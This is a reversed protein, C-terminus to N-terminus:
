LQLRRRRSALVLLTGLGVFIAAFELYGRVPTGTAALRATSQNRVPTPTTGGGSDGGVGPPLAAPGGFTLPVPPTTAGPDGATAARISCAGSADYCGVIGASTVIGPKLTLDASFRGEADSDLLQITLPGCDPVLTDEGRCQGVAVLTNPAFGSGEVHVVSGESLYDSPTVTLTPRPPPPADPDFTLPVVSFSIADNYSFVAVFCADPACDIPQSGAQIVRRITFDGALNGEGDTQLTPGFNCRFNFFTSDTTCQVINYTTNPAFGGGEVHAPSTWPLDTSPELTLTPPPPLPADPDFHLDIETSSFPDTNSQAYLACEGDKTCDVNPEGPNGLIRKVTFSTSFTGDADAILPASAGYSGSCFNQSGNEDELCEYLRVFDNAVFGSGSVTVVDNHALDRNPEVTITPPPPPPVDPDFAIPIDVSHLLNEYSSVRIVCGPKEACDVVTGGPGPYGILRRVNFSTSLNGDGDVPPVFPGPGPFFSQYSCAPFPETDGLACQSIQVDEFPAFGSGSLDVPQNHVLDRNPSASATPRDIPADPDFRLEARGTAFRDTEASVQIYCDDEACDIVLEGPYGVFRQAAFTTTVTGTDDAVVGIIPGFFGYACVPYQDRDACEEVFVPAGPAFGTGTVTVQQDHVLDRAPDVTVVPPPPFEINPDFTIDSTAVEQYDSVRAAGIGCADAGRCDVVGTNVNMRAGVVMTATWNGDADSTTIVSRSLDCSNLDIGGSQCQAAGVSTNPSYGTGDIQVTQGDLLGTNPTVTIRPNPQPPPAEAPGVPPAPGGPLPVVISPDGTKASTFGPDEPPATTAPATNPSPTEATRGAPKEGASKKEAPKSETPEPAAATTTAPTSPPPAPKAAALPAAVVLLAVVLVAASGLRVGLPRAPRGM